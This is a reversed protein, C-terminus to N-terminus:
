PVTPLLHRASSDEADELYSREFAAKSVSYSIHDVTENPRGVPEQGGKAVPELPLRWENSWGMPEFDRSRRVTNESRCQPALDAPFGGLTCGYRTIQV